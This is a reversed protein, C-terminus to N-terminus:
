YIGRKKRRQRILFVFVVIAIIVIAAIIAYNMSKTSAVASEAKEKALEAYHSANKAAAISDEARGQWYADKANGLYLNATELSTKAESVDFGAETANSITWNAKKIEEDAKHWANLADYIIESSVDEKIAEVVYKGETTEQTINLLTIPKQKRVEPATGSWIVVVEEGAKKHDLKYSSGSKLVEERIHGEAGVLDSYFFLTSHDIEKSINTLVVKISVESGNKVMETGYVKDYSISKVEANVFPSKQLTAGDLEKAIAGASTCIPM